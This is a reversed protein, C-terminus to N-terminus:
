GDACEQKLFDTPIIRFVKKLEESSEPKNGGGAGQVGGNGKISM